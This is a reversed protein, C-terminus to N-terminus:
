QAIGTSPEKQGNHCTMCNVSFEAPNTKNFYKKNLKMTMKMMGRAVNLEGVFDSRPNSTTALGLYLFRFTKGLSIESSSKFFVM